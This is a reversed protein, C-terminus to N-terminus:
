ALDIILICALNYRMNMNGPDLLLAREMLNKAREAEVLSPSHMSPLAWQRDTTRTKRSSRKPAPWRASRPAARPKRIAAHNYAHNLMGSAWYDTEM